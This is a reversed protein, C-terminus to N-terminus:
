STAVKVLFPNIRVRVVDGDAAATQRAVCVVENNSPTGPAAIITAECSVIKGTTGAIACRDGAAIVGAAVAFCEGSEQVTVNKDAAAADDSFGVFGAVNAAGPYKVEGDDTAQVVARHIALAEHAKYTRYTGQM